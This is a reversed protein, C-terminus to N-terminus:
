YKEIYPPHSIWIQTQGKGVSIEIGSSVALLRKEKDLYM